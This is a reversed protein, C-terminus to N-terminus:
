LPTLHAHAMWQWHGDKKKWISMRSASKGALNQNDITENASAVYTIILNDGKFQSLAFHGLNFNRLLELEAEKNRAEDSHVSQFEPAIKSALAEFNRAQIEQWTQRELQEGESWLKEDRM